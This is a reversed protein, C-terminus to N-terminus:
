LFSKGTEQGQLGCLVRLNEVESIWIRGYGGSAIYSNGIFAIGLTINFSPYLKQKITGLHALVPLALIDIGDM